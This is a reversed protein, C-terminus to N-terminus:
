GLLFLFFFLIFLSISDSGPVFLFCVCVYVFMAVCFICNLSLIKTFYSWVAKKLFVILQEVALALMEFHVNAFQSRM